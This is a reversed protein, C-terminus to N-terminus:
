KAVEARRNGLALNYEETGREDCNGAITIALDPKERLRHAVHQLRATDSAVLRAADFDFHIVEGSFTRPPVPTKPVASPRPSVAVSPPSSPEPEVVVKRHACGLACTLTLVAIVMSIPGNM